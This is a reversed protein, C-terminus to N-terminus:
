LPLVLEVLTGRGEHSTLRADGQHARAVERTFALGLGSGNAKTTHFPEFARELARADMGAGDDQVGLVANNGEIRTSVTVNGARGSPMAQFANTVLNELAASLLDADANLMPAPEGLQKHVAVNTTAFAQLALVRNVLGNLDLRTPHPELRSMRQYRDILRTLRDLQEAILDVFETQTPPRGQRIEERLYETAGKAAALPNKLDHAMQASFRGLNAFRELGQRQAAASAVATRALAVLGLAGASVSVILVGQHGAVSSSFLTLYAVAVFLALLAAQALSSSQRDKALIKLSLMLHALLASFAVSGVRALRPVDFGNDAMLDTPLLVVAIAIALLLVRSRYRELDTTARRAHRVVITLAFAAYPIGTVAAAASWLSLTSAQRWTVAAGIAQFSFVAYTVALIPALARRRGIFLLVFHLGFPVFLPTAVVALWRLRDDGALEYSLPRRWIWAFQDVGVLTLPLALPSKAGRVLAGVSCSWPRGASGASLSHDLADVGETRDLNRCM